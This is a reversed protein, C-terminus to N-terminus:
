RQLVVAEVRAAAMLDGDLTALEATHRQTLEVYAADHVSLRHRRALRLVKSEKPTRDLTMPLRAPERLFTGSEAETLRKGANM